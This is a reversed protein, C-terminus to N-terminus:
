LPQKTRLWTVPNYRRRSCPLLSGRHARTRPLRVYNCDTRRWALIPRGSPRLHQIQSTSPLRAM